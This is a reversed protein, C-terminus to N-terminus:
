CLRQSFEYNVVKENKIKSIYKFFFLKMIKWRQDICRHLLLKRWVQKNNANVNKMFLPNTFEVVYIHSSDRLWLRGLADNFGGLLLLKFMFNSVGFEVQSMLM